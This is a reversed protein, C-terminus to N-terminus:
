VEHYVSDMIEQIRAPVPKSRREKMEDLAQVVQFRTVRRAGANLEKEYIKAVDKWDAKVDPNNKVFLKAKQCASCGNSGGAGLARTRRHGARCKKYKLDTPRIEDFKQDQAREIEFIMADNPTFINSAPTGDSEGWFWNEKSHDFLCDHFRACAGEPPAGHFTLAVLVGVPWYIGKGNEGLWVHEINKRKVTERLMRPSTRFEGSATKGTRQRRWVKGKDTIQYRGGYLPIERYNTM